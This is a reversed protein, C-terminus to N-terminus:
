IWVRCVGDSVVQAEITSRCLCDANSIHLLDPVPDDNGRFYVM